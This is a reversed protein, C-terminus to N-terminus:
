VEKWDDPLEPMEWLIDPRWSAWISDFPPRNARVIALAQAATARVEAAEKQTFLGAAIAQAFEDEDKNRWSKRDPAVVVDLFMDWTDFGFRTRQYPADINIYWSRLSTMGENWFVWLSWMARPSKLRLTGSTHWERPVMDWSKASMAEVSLHGKGDSLGNMVTAGVPLWTATLEPTDAVVISPFVTQVRGNFVNRIVIHDGPQFRPSRRANRMAHNGYGAVQKFREMAYVTDRDIEGLEAQKM